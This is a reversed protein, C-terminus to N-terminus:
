SEKIQRVAQVSNVFLTLLDESFCTTLTKACKSDLM